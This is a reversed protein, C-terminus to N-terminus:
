GEVIGRVVRVLERLKDVGAESATKVLFSRMEEASEKNNFIFLDRIEVELVTSIKELTDMSPYHVGCEIRSVSNPDICILEAFKEQSLDNKKRIHRIRRGLLKKFKAM